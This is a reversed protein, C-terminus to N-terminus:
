AWFFYLKWGSVMDTAVNRTSTSYDWDVRAPAGASVSAVLGSGVAM